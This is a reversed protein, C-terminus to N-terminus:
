TYSLINNLLDLADALEPENTSNHRLMIKSEYDTKVDGMNVSSSSTMKSPLEELTQNTNKYFIKQIPVTSPTPLSTAVVENLLDMVNSVNSFGSFTLTEIPTTYSIRKSSLAEKTENKFKIQVKDNSTTLKIINPIYLIIKIDEHYFSVHYDSVFLTGKFPINNRTEMFCDFSEFCQEDTEMLEEFCSQFQLQACKRNIDGLVNQNQPLSLLLDSWTDKQTVTIQNIGERINNTSLKRQYLTPYSQPSLPNVFIIGSTDTPTHTVPQSKARSM